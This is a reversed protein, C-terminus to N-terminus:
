SDLNISDGFKLKLKVKLASMEEKIESLEDQLTEVERDVAEKDQQLRIQVQDLKINMFADGIKYPVLEDEDVLELENELDELYEKDQSKDKLEEERLSLRNVLKSFTNIM